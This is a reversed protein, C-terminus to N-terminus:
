GVDRITDVRRCDQDLIVERLLDSWVFVVIGDVSSNSVASVADAFEEHDLSSSRKDKAYIGDLYIPNSQITCLTKCGARRKVEEGAQPIWSTPRRLIQHYTMVEFVDVVDALTEIHQGFVKERAGDFDGASFPLTNLMIQIGPQTNQCTEKVKRIVDVVVQCKWKTWRERAKEEIWAAAAAPDRAQLNVGTENVFRDLTHRDYSYEPFDQRRSDPMWLEWFGPWRTFSLFIGDPELEKIEREIISTQYTVFKEMSPAIGVYWDIKEMPKGDSGTPLLSPDEEIAKPEYFTRVTLWYEIGERALADRLKRDDYAKMGPVEDVSNKSPIAGELKNLLRTRVLVSTVGWERLLKAAEQYSLNYKIFWDLDYIKM